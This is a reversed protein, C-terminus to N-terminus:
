KDTNIIEKYRFCDLVHDNVIGVAQMFAYCITPGVFNFGRKKLDKSIKVSLETSAPIDALKKFQNQIPQHNAFGWIYHDFSGYEEQVKIFQQANNIASRIKLRNRIIGVDHMLKEFNSDSFLAVKQVDFNVFAKRYGERRKLITSWSLGAQAGELILFEFLEQDEHVPTGWEKDHYDVMLPDSGAWACRKKTM